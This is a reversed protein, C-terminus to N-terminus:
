QQGQLQWRLCCSILRHIMIPNHNQKGAMLLDWKLLLDKLPKNVLLVLEEEIL